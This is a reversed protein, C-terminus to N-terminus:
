SYYVMHFDNESQFTENVNARNDGHSTAPNQGLQDTGPGDQLDMQEKLPNRLNLTPWLQVPAIFISRM